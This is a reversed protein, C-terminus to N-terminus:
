PPTGSPRRRSTTDPPAPVACSRATPRRGTRSRGRASPPPYAGWLNGNQTAIWDYPSTSSTVFSGVVTSSTSGAAARTATTGLDTVDENRGWQFFAGLYAKQAATRATSPTPYPQGAGGVYATTAGVNCAAWRQGNDLVIDPTDCGPYTPPAAPGTPEGDVFAAAPDSGAPDRILGPLSSETETPYDGVVYATSDSLIGATQVFSTASASRSGDPLDAAGVLVQGFDASAAEQGEAAASLWPALARLLGPVAGSVRFRDPDLRLKAYDPNGASYNTGPEGYPGPSLSAEVADFVVVSGKSFAYAPDHM